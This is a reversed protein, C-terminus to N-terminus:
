LGGRPGLKIQRDMALLFVGGLIVGAPLYVLAAGWCVGAAGALGPLLRSRSRAWGIVRGVGVIVEAFIQSGRAAAKRRFPAATITTM